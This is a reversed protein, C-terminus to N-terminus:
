FTSGIATSDAIIIAPADESGVSLYPFNSKPNTLSKLIDNKGEGLVFFIKNKAANILPLTMTMRESGDDPKQTAIIQENSSLSSSNPFLSATHGDNGIGLLICDLPHGKLSKNITAAYNHANQDIDHEAKMRHIYPSHTATLATIGEECAMRYNSLASEPPVAREDSWFIHTQNWQIAPSIFLRRYLPRPTSGGSLALSFFNNEQISISAIQEIFHTTFEVTSVMEGPCVVIHTKTQYCILKEPIYHTKKM